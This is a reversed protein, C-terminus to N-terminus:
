PAEREPSSFKHALQEGCDACFRQEKYDVLAIHTALSMACKPEACHTLGCTHGFEHLVEKILRERLMGNDAPLSYFEQRLRALSVVAVQGDLQAQGFVFTLTPIALDGETIGIIRAADPPANKAVTKMIEVSKYQSRYQDYSGEPFPVPPLRRVPWPSWEVLTAEIWELVEASVNGIALLYVASV